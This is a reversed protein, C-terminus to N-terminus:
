IVGPYAGAGRSDPPDHVALEGREGPLRGPSTPATVRLRCRSPRSALLPRGRGRTPALGRPTAVASSRLRHERAFIRVALLRGVHRVLSDAQARLAVTEPWLTATMAPAPQPEAADSRRSASGGPKGRNGKTLLPRVTARNPSGPWPSGSVPLGGWTLHGDAICTPRSGSASPTDRPLEVPGARDRDSQCHSHCQVRCV